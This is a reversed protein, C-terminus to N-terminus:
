VLYTLSFLLSPVLAMLSCILAPILRIGHTVKVSLVLLTSEWLMISVFYITFLVHHVQGFEYLLFTGVILLAVVPPFAFSYLALQEEFTGRGNFLRALLTAVGAFIICQILVTPVLAYFSFLWVKDTPYPLFPRTEPYVHTFHYYLQKGGALLIHVALAFFAYRMQQPDDKLTQLTRVPHLYLSLYAKIYKM